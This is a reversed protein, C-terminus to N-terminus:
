AGAKRPPVFVSGNLAGIWTADPPFQKTVIQAKFQDLTLGEAVMDWGAYKMRLREKQIMFPPTDHRPREPAPLRPRAMNEIFKAQKRAEQTFEAVTPAFRTSQGAVEGRCYRRATESVARDPIDRVADDFTRVLVDVDGSSQPFANLMAAIAVLTQQSM